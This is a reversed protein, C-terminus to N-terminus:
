RFAWRGLDLRFPRTRLADVISGVYRTGHPQVPRRRARTSSMPPTHYLVRNGAIHNPRGSIFVARRDALLLGNKWSDKLHGYAFTALFDLTTTMATLLQHVPCLPEFLGRNGLARRDGFLEAVQRGTALNEDLPPTELLALADETWPQTPPMRSAVSPPASESGVTAWGLAAM